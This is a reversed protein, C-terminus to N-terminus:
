GLDLPDVQVRLHPLKRASRTAQAQKLARSLAPGDAQPVRVVVRATEEDLPVPGLTEAHAPLDLARLLEDVAEAPGSVGAVRAAPPLRTSTREDLEREAAGAPDWRVLSQVPALGPDGVVVVTGGEEAPRVLAAAALWRRLAEEATRLDPRALTLWTDLLLAAAYGGDAVPEAGPTAVVLAPRGAVRDHVRGGASSVVPVQPFARGLEEATRQQGV